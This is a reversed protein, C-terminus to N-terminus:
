TLRNQQSKFWARALLLTLVAHFMVAPWLLARGMRQSHRSVLSVVHCARRLDAHRALAPRALLRGRIRDPRHRARPGSTHRRRYTGPRTLAAWGSVSWWCRWARQPEAIAALVLPKKMAEIGTKESARSQDAIVQFSSACGEKPRRVSDFTLKDIKGTFKFPPDYRYELMAVGTRTDQGVDFDEDEPFEIPTTNEMTKKAM